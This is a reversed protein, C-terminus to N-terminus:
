RPQGVRCERTAKTVVAEVFGLGAPPLTVQSPMGRPLLMTALVTASSHLGCYLALVRYRYEIMASTSASYDGPSAPAM